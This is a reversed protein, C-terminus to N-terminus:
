ASCHINSKSYSIRIFFDLLKESTADAERGKQYREEREKLFADSPLVRIM